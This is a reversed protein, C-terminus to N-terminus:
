EMCLAQELDYIAAPTVEDRKLQDLIVDAANELASLKDVARNLECHPCQRQLQGHKCALGNPNFKYCKDLYEQQNNAVRKVRELEIVLQVKSASLDTILSIAQLIIERRPEGVDRAIQELKKLYIDM